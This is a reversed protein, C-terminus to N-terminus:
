AAAYFPVVRFRNRDVPNLKEYNRLALSAQTYTTESTTIATNKVMSCANVVLFTPADLTFLKPRGALMYKQAGVRRVGGRGAASRQLMGRLQDQTPVYPPDLDNEEVRVGEATVFVTEYALTRSGTPGTAVTTPALRVGGIMKDFSDSSLRQANSLNTFHAPAFDDESLEIENVPQGGLSVTSLQFHTHVIPRYEGFKELEQNLPCVKQRLTASGVPDIPTRDATAAASLSVVSYGEPPTEGAWNRPDKIALELGRV